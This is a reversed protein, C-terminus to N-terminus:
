CLATGAPAPILASFVSCLSFRVDTGGARCPRKRSSRVRLAACDLYFGNRQRCAYLPPDTQQRGRGASQQFPSPLLGRARDMVELTSPYLWVPIRTKVEAPTNPEVSVPTNKSMPFKRRKIPFGGTVAVKSFTSVPRNERQKEENRGGQVALLPYFRGGISFGRGARRPPTAPRRACLRGGAKIRCKKRGGPEDAVKPQASNATHPVGAARKQCPQTQPSRRSTVKRIASLGYLPACATM